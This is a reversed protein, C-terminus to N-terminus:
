YGFKRITLTAVVQYVLFVTITMGGMVVVAPARLLPDFVAWWIDSSIYREVVAQFLGLYHLLGVDAFIQGLPHFVWEEEELAVGADFLLVLFLGSTAILLLLILIFRVFAAM